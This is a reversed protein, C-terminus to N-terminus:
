QWCVTTKGHTIIEWAIGVLLVGITIGCSVGLWFAWGASPMLVKMPFEEFLLRELVNEL